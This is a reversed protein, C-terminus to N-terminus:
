MVCICRLKCTLNSNIFCHIVPSRSMTDVDSVSEGILKAAKKRIILAVSKAAIVRDGNRNV